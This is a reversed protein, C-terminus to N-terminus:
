PSDSSVFLDCVRSRASIKARYSCPFHLLRVAVHRSRPTVLTASTVAWTGATPTGANPTFVETVGSPSGGVAVVQGSGLTTATARARLSMRRCWRDTQRSTIWYPTKLTGVIFRRQRANSRRPARSRM